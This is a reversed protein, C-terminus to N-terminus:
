PVLRGDGATPSVRCPRKHRQCHQFPLPNPTQSPEPLSLGWGPQLKKLETKPAHQQPFTIGVLVQCPTDLDKAGAPLVAEWEEWLLREVGSLLGPSSFLWSIPAQAKLPPHRPPHACGPLAQRKGGVVWWSPSEAPWCRLSTKAWTFGRCFTGAKFPPSKM